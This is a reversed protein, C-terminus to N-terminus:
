LFNEIQADSGFVQWYRINNPVTPKNKVEVIYQRTPCFPLKCTSASTALGNPFVNQNTYVVFMSYEIFSELFDLVVNRYARM